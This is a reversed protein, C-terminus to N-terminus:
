TLHSNTLQWVLQSPLALLRERCIRPPIHSIFSPLSKPRFPLEAPNFKGPPLLLPQPHLPVQTEAERQGASQCTSTAIDTLHQGPWALPCNSLSARIKPRPRPQPIYAKPFLKLEQLLRRPLSCPYSGLDQPRQHYSLLFLFFFHHPLAWSSPSFDLPYPTELTLHFPAKPSLFQDSHGAVWVGPPFCQPGAM